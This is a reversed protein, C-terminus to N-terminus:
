AGCCKKHKKGSGCPCPENRGVKPQDRYLPKRSALKGDRFKWEGDAKEFEAREHHEVVKEQIRYKAMFEVEGTDDDAGGDTTDLISLELWDSQEAWAKTEAENYGERADPHLSEGLFGVEHRVFATYRARMLAEATEALQKGSILPECCDPYSGGSGCPCSEAM